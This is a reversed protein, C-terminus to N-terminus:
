GHDASIVIRDPGVETVAEWPIGRCKQVPGRLRRLLARRGLLLEDLVFTDREWHARAEFVRGLSRGASDVVRRGMLESFAHPRELEL